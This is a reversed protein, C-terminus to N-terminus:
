VNIPSGQRGAVLNSEGDGTRQDEGTENFEAGNRNIGFLM